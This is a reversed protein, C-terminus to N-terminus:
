MKRLLWLRYMKRLMSMIPEMVLLMYASKAVARSEFRGNGGLGDFSNGVYM